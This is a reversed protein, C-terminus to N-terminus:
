LQINLYLLQQIQTTIKIAEIHIYTHLKIYEVYVVCMVAIMYLSCLNKLFLVNSQSFTCYHAGMSVRESVKERVSTHLQIITINKTTKCISVKGFNHKGKSSAHCLKQFLNKSLIHLSAQIMCCLTIYGCKTCTASPYSWHKLEYTM